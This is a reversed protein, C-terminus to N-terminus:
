IDFTGTEQSFPRANVNLQYALRFSIKVICFFSIFVNSHWKFLSNFNLQYRIVLIEYKSYLLRIGQEM